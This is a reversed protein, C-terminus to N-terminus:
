KVPKVFNLENEDIQETYLITNIDEALKGLQMSEQFLDKAICYVKGEKVAKFDSMLSNKDILEDISKLEGGITSNYIIYDADKSAAYFDEMSMTMTANGKDDDVTADLVYEGGAYEILKPIYDSAKRVSVMGNSTFYFFAISKKEKDKNDNSVKSLVNEFAEKQEEFLENARDECGLIAGYVKIWESRGLPENENSSRDVFVTMGLNELGEKVEPTHYIMQSEFAMKCGSALLMEYDPASYKGAYQIKGDEMAKKAEEIYWSDAKTGSLTIADLKDLAVFLNMAVTACLYINDVPQYIPVIDEALNAPKGMGEPIILYKDVPENITILKYGCDYADITFATAYDNEIRVSRDINNWDYNADVPQDLTNKSEKKDSSNQEIEAATVKKGTIASSDFYLTYDVLHPKSMATTDASVALKTDLAAVPIEFESFEEMTVPEIREDNVMMFDYKNSSWIITATMKGDKIVLKTPSQVKAKGSGGELTVDVMYEGDKIGEESETQTETTVLLDEDKSVNNLPVEQKACGCMFMVCMVTVTGALLNKLKNNKKLYNM